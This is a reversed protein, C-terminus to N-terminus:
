GEKIQKLFTLLAPVAKEPFSLKVKRKPVDAFLVIIGNEDVWGSLEGIEDTYITKRLYSKREKNM